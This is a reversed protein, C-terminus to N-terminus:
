FLLHCYNQYLNNINQRSTKGIINMYLIRSFPHQPCQSILILFLGRTLVTRWEDDSKQLPFSEAMNSDSTNSSSSSFLAGFFPISPLSKIATRHYPRLNNNFATSAAIAPNLHNNTFTSLSKTFAANITTTNPAKIGAFATRLQTTLHVLNSIRM